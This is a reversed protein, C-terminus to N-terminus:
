APARLLPVRPRRLRRHRRARLRPRRPLAPRRRRDHHPPRRHPRIQLVPRPDQRGQLDPLQRAQLDQRRRQFQRRHQRLRPDRLAPASRPERRLRASSQGEPSPPGRRPAARRAHATHRHVRCTIARPLRATALTLALLTTALSSPLFRVQENDCETANAFPISREPLVRRGSRWITQGALCFPLCVM